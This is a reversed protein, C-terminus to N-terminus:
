LPGRAISKEKRSQCDVCRVRGLKLRILPLSDECEVCNKGDFDAHTEVDSKGLQRRLADALCTEVTEAAIDALDAM